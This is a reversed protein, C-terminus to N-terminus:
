GGRLAIRPPQAGKKACRRLYAERWHGYRGMRAQQALVLALFGERGAAGKAAKGIRKQPKTMSCGICHMGVPGARRFKCVGICPGPVKAM